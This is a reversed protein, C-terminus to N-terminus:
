YKGGIAVIIVFIVMVIVCPQLLSRVYNCAYMCVYMYEIYVHTDMYMGQDM